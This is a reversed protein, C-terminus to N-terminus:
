QKVELLEPNDTLNGIVEVYNREDDRDRLPLLATKISSTPKSDIGFAPKYDAWVVVGRGLSRYTLGSAGNPLEVCYSVIDREFLKVDKSDKLGTYQGVTKPDVEVLFYVVEDDNRSDPAKVTEAFEIFAKDGRLLLSGYIWKGAKIRKKVTTMIMSYDFYAEKEIVVYHLNKGRFEIKRMSNDEKNTNLVQQQKLEEMTMPERIILNLKAALEIFRKKAKDDACLILGSTESARRVAQVMKGRSRSPFSVTIM